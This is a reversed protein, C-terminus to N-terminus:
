PENLGLQRKVDALPVTETERARAELLEMLKKNRRTVALERDFEDVAVLMFESGDALRVILDEQRAQDLLANVDNAESPIEVVKM